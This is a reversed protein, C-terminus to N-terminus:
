EDPIFDDEPVYEGHGVAHDEEHNAYKAFILRLINYYRYFLYEMFDTDVIKVKDMETHRIMFTNAMGWLDKVETELIPKLEPQTLSLKELIKGISRKKDDDEWSSVRQFADVLKELGISQEDSKRDYFKETAVKILHQTDKDEIIFDDGTITKDMLGSHREKIDGKELKYSLKFNEFLKNVRITYQLTARGRDFGYELEISIFKFFFEILDFVINKGPLLKPLPYLAIGIEQLMKRNVKEKVVYRYPGDNGYVEEGFNEYLLSQDEIEDIYAKFANWFEPTIEKTYPQNKRSYYSSLLYGM